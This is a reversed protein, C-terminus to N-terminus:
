QDSKRLQLTTMTASTVTSSSFRRTAGTVTSSSFRRTAGTVTSSSFRRFFGGFSRRRELTPGSLTGDNNSRVLSTKIIFELKRRIMTFTPRNKASASWGSEIIEQLLASDLAASPSKNHDKNAPYSSTNKQINFDTASKQEPVLMLKPVHRLPPRLNYMSVQQKLEQPSYFNDFAVRDTVLQWLLISFSYVDVAFGYNSEGRSIEPAMYRPTGIKRTMLRPQGEKNNSNTKETQDFLIVRALGFDFIKVQQTKEDFGINGPKLDRYIINNTHLHEMGKVIGMAIDELREIIETNNKMMRSSNRILRQGRYSKKGESRWRVLKDDLTEHLPDLCLFFTGNKLLDIIDGDGRIGHITIINEHNLNALVATEVALDGACIPLLKKSSRVSEKLQKVAFVRGTHPHYAQFVNSFGGSGLLKDFLLENEQFLDLSKKKKRCNNTSTTSSDDSSSQDDDISDYSSTLTIDVVPYKMHNDWSTNFRKLKKSAAKGPCVPMKERQIPLSEVKHLKGGIL